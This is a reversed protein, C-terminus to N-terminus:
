RDFTYITLSLKPTGYEASEDSFAFEVFQGTNLTDQWLTFDSRTKSTGYRANLTSILDDSLRIKEAEDKLFVDLQAAALQDSSFELRYIISRHEGKDVVGTLVSNDNAILLHEIQTRTEELSSGMLAGHFHGTIGIVDESTLEAGDCATLLFAM